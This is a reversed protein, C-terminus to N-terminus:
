YGLKLFEKFAKLRMKKHRKETTSKEQKDKKKAFYPDEMKIKEVGLVRKDGTPYGIVDIITNSSGNALITTNDDAHKGGSGCGVVDRYDENTKLGKPKQKYINIIKIQESDFVIWDYRKDSSWEIENLYEISDYGQKILHKKYGLALKKTKIVTNNDAWLCTTISNGIPSDYPLKFLEKLDVKSTDYINNKSGWILMDKVLDSETTKLTKNVYIEVTYVVFHPYKAFVREALNFNPTFHTGLYSLLHNDQGLKDNIFKDFITNTGHYLPTITNM